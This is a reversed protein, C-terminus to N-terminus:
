GQKKFQAIFWPLASARVVTVFRGADTKAGPDKVNEALWKKQEDTGSELAKLYKLITKGQTGHVDSMTGIVARGPATKGDSWLVDVLWDNEETAVPLEGGLKEKCFKELASARVVTVPFGAVRAGPDKVNEALWKKQM